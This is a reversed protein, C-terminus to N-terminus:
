VTPHNMRRLSTYLYGVMYISLTLAHHHAPSAMFIDTMTEGPWSIKFPSGCEQKFRYLTGSDRFGFWAQSGLLHLSVWSFQLLLLSSVDGRGSCHFLQPVKTVHCPKNRESNPLELGLRPLLWQGMPKPRQGLCSITTPGHPLFHQCASTPLLYLPWFSLGYDRGPWSKLSTMQGLDM